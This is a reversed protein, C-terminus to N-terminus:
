EHRSLQAGARVLYQSLGNALHVRTPVRDGLLSSAGSEHSPLMNGTCSLCATAGRLSDGICVYPQDVQMLSDVGRLAKGM